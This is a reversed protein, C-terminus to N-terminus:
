RGRPPVAAPEAPKQAVLLADVKALETDNLRGVAAQLRLWNLWADYRSRSLDRQAEFLRSQADLVEGSVKVGVEYGRRNARLAVEASDM